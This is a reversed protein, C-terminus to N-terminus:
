RYFVINKVKFVFLIVNSAFGVLTVKKAQKAQDGLIRSLNESRESVTHSHIFNFPGENHEHHENNNNGHFLISSQHYLHQSSYLSRKKTLINEIRNNRTFVPSINISVHFM